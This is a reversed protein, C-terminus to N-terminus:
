FIYYPMHLFTTIMSCKTDRQQLEHLLGSAGLGVHKVNPANLGTAKGQYPLCDYAMDNRSCLVFIKIGWPQLTGKVYLKISLKGTFPVM